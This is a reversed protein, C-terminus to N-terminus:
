KKIEGNKGGSGNCGLRITIITSTDKRSLIKCHGNLRALIKIIKERACEPHIRQRGSMKMGLIVDDGRDLFEIIHKVKYEIDNEEIDPSFWMEKVEKRGERRMKKLKKEEAYKWKNFDIIKCLALGDREPKNFCVLDLGNNKALQIAEVTRIKPNFQGTSDILRTFDFSVYKVVFPFRLDNM